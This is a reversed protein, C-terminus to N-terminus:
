GKGLKRIKRDIKQPSIKKINEPRLLQKLITVSDKKKTYEIQIENSINTMQFKM